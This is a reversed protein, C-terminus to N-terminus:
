FVCDEIAQPTFVAENEKVDDYNNSSSKQEDKFDREAIESCESIFADFETGASTQFREGDKQFLISNLGFNIGKNGPFQYCYFNGAILAHCGSYINSADLREKGVGRVCFVAPSHISGARLVFNGAAGEWALTDGDRLPFSAGKPNINAAKCMDLFRASMEERFGKNEAKPILLSLSFKFRGNQDYDMKNFYGGDQISYGGNSKMKYSGDALKIRKDIINVFALRGKFVQIQKKNEM